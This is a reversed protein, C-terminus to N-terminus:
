GKRKGMKEMGGAKRIARKLVGASHQLPNLKRDRAMGEVDEGYREVLRQVYAVEGNSSFRRVPKSTSAAVANATEQLDNRGLRAWEVSAPTIGTIKEEELCEEDSAEGGEGLGEEDGMEVSLVNGEGDRIIRGYGKPIAGKAAQSGGAASDPEGMEGEEEEGDVELSTEVREVGGAARPNFSMALGLTAYNQRVTKKKDWAEQLAKPGRIPPQKKLLTKARRSHQVAKHTSSRQKRRQRPNAM